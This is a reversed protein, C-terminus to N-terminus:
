VALRVLAPRRDGDLDVEAEGVAGLSLCMHVVESDVQRPRTGHDEHHKGAKDEGLELGHQGWTCSM